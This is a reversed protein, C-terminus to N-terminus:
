SMVRRMSHQQQTRQTTSHLDGLRVCVQAQVPDNAQGPSGGDGAGLGEWLRTLAALESPPRPYPMCRPGLRWPCPTDTHHTPPAIKKGGGERQKRASFPSPVAHLAHTHQMAHLGFSQVGRWAACMGMFAPASTTNRRCSPSVPACCERISREPAPFRCMMHPPRPTAFCVEWRKLARLLPRPKGKHLTTAVLVAPLVRSLKGKPLVHM